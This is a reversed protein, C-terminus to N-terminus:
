MSTKDIDVYDITMTFFEISRSVQWKNNELKLPFLEYLFIYKKNTM